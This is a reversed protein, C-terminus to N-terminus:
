RDGGVAQRKYVDLHTYSVPVVRVKNKYKRQLEYENVFPFKVIECLYGNKKLTGAILAASDLERQLKEVVIVFDYM